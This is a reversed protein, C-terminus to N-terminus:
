HKLNEEISTLEKTKLILTRNREDVKAVRKQFEREQELENEKIKVHASKLLLETEKEIAKAKAKAESELYSFRHETSKKLWLYCVGTGIAMGALSSVGIIGLMSIRRDM